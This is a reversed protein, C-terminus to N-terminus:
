TRILEFPSTEWRRGYEAILLADALSHTIRISPFLQQAKAKSINKDGHTLCGVAKQWKAPLVEETSIGCAALGMLVREYNRGFTFASTVGMQPSSRVREVFARIVHPAYERLLEFYEQPAEPLKYAAVFPKCLDASLFAIGGNAGPDAGCILPPYDPMNLRESTGAQAQQADPHPM